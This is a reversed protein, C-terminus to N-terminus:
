RKVEHTNHEAAFDDDYEESDGDSYIQKWEREEDFLLSQGEAHGEAIAPPPTPKQTEEGGLHQVLVNDEEIVNRVDARRRDGGSLPGAGAADGLRRSTPTCDVSDLVYSECDYYAFYLQKLQAVAAADLLEGGEEADGVGEGAAGSPLENTDPRAGQRAMEAVAASLRHRMYSQITTILTTVVVSCKLMPVSLGQRHAAGRPVGVPPLTSPPPGSLPHAALYSKVVSRFGAVVQRRAQSLEDRLRRERAVAGELSLLTHAASANSEEDALVLRQHGSLFLDGVVTTPPGSTKGTGVTRQVRTSRTKAAGSSKSVAPNGPQLPISISHRQFKLNPPPGQPPPPRVSRSEDDGDTSIDLRSEAQKRPIKFEWQKLPPSANGSSKANPDDAKAAAPKSLIRRMLDQQDPLAPLRGKLRPGGSPLETLHIEAHKHRRASTSSEKGNGNGAHEAGNSKKEREDGGIQPHPQRKGSARVHPPPREESHKPSSPRGILPSPSLSTLTKRKKAETAAVEPFANLKPEPSVRPEM